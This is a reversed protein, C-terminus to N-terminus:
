EKSNLPPAVGTVGEGGGMDPNALISIIFSYLWVDFQNYIHSRKMNFNWEIDM